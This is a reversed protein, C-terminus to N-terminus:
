AAMAANLVKAEINGDEFFKWQRVARWWYRGQREDKREAERPTVSTFQTVIIPAIGSRIKRKALAFAHMKLTLEHTITEDSVDFEVQFREAMRMTGETAAHRSDDGMGDFYGLRNCDLWAIRQADM